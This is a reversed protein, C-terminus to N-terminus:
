RHRSPHASNWGPSPDDDAHRGPQDDGNDHSDEDAARDALAIPLDRPVLVPRLGRAGQRRRADHPGSRRGLVRGRGPSRCLAADPLSRRRAAADGARQWNIESQRGDRRAAPASRAATLAPHPPRRARLHRALGARTRSTIVIEVEVPEVSKARALDTPTREHGGPLLSTPDLRDRHGPRGIGPRSL